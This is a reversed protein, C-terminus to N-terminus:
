ARDGRHEDDPRDDSEADRHGQQPAMPDAQAVHQDCGGEVENGREPYCDPEMPQEGVVAEAPDSAISPEIM